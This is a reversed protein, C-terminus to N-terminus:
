VEYFTNDTEHYRCSFVKNAAMVVDAATKTFIPRNVGGGAQNHKITPTGSTKITLLQGGQWGTNVLRNIQTNGTVDIMGTGAPIALDNAAAVSTFNQKTPQLFRDLMEKTVRQAVIDGAAFSLAVTGEQARLITLVGAARATCHVIEKELTNKRVLTVKAVQNAGPSPFKAADAAQVTLALDGALIGALLTSEANNLYLLEAM